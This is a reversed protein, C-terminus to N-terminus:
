LNNLKASLAAAADASVWKSWVEKETKLFHIATAEPEAKQEDSWALLKNLTETDLVQKGLYDAVSPAKSKLESTLGSVINAVPYDGAFPHQCDAKANCSHGEANYAPMDLKVFQYKGMITSPTWYYTLIPQKRIYARAISADLAGASGPDYLEFDKDLGFAKYLNSTVIQTAWGTPASYLRGKGPSNMDEFLSKFKPLDSVSKLDPHADVVYKPVWWGEVAGNGFVKGGTAVKNESVGKQWVQDVNSLWLEPIIQPKGKSIASTASPLTDGPVLTTKCGYGLSLIKDDISALISASPWSMNAIEIPDKVECAQAAFPLGFAFTLALGAFAPGMVLDKRM